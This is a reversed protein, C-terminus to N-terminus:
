SFKIGKIGKFMTSRKIFDKQLDIVATTYGREYATQLEKQQYEKIGMQDKIELIKSYAEELTYKKAKM